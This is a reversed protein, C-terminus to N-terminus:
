ATFDERNYITTYHIKALRRIAVRISEARTMHDVDVSRHWNEVAKVCFGTESDLKNTRLYDEISIIPKCPHPVGYASMTEVRIMCIHHAKRLAKYGEEPAIRAHRTLYKQIAHICADHGNAMSLQFPQIGTKYHDGGVQQDLAKNM